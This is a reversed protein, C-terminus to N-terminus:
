IMKNHLRVVLICMQWCSQFALYMTLKDRGSQFALYMTLKDRGSLHSPTNISSWTKRLPCYIPTGDRFSRATSPVYFVVLWCGVLQFALYMSLKDRGSQFALYMTLKDRGSQFALYMSLKDRGSQPRTQSFASNLSTCEIEDWLGFSPNFLM